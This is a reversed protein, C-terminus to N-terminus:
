SRAMILMSNPAFGMVAETIVFVTDFEKANEPSAPAIRMNAGGNLVKRLSVIQEADGDRHRSTGYTKPLDTSTM